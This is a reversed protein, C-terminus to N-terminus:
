SSYFISVYRLAVEVQTDERKRNTIGSFSRRNWVYRNLFASRFKQTARYKSVHASVLNLINLPSWLSKLQSWLTLSIAQWSSPLWYKHSQHFLRSAVACATRRLIFGSNGSNFQIYVLSFLTLSLVSSVKSAFLTESCLEHATNVFMRHGPRFIKWFCKIRQLQLIQGRRWTIIFIKNDAACLKNHHTTFCYSLFKFSSPLCPGQNFLAPVLKITFSTM